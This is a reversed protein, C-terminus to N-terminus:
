RPTSWRLGPFRGFDRDFTVVEANHEIALAALHADAVNGGTGLEALLRTLVDLHRHTPELVHAASQDLWMRVVSTAEGPTLTRPFLGQKTTIRVFAILASWAFGVPAAGSLSRDLWAKAPLHQTAAPNVAYILVNADVLKM